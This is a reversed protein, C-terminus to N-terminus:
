FKKSFVDLILTNLWVPRFQFKAEEHMELPYNPSCFVLISNPNLKLINNLNVLQTLFFKQKRTQISKFRRGVWQSQHTAPYTSVLVFKLGLARYGKWSWRKPIVKLVSPLPSSDEVM